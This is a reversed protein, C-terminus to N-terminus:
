SPRKSIASDVNTMIMLRRKIALIHRTESCLSFPGTLRQSNFLSSMIQNPRLATIRTLRFRRTFQSTIQHHCLYQNGVELSELCFFYWFCFYKLNEPFMRSATMFVWSEAGLVCVYFTCTTSGSDFKPVPLRLFQWKSDTAKLVDKFRLTKMQLIPIVTMLLWRKQM